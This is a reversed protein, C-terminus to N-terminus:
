LGPAIGLVTKITIIQNRIPTKRRSIKPQSLYNAVIQAAEEDSLKRYALIRFTLNNQDDRGTTEIDPERMM